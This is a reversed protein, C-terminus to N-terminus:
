LLYNNEQNAIQLTILRYTAYGSTVLPEMKCLEEAEERSETKLIYMGAMGPYDKFVGCIELKGQDDLRKINEVHKSIIEMTMEDYSKGKEIIVMYMLKEMSLENEGTRRDLNEERM